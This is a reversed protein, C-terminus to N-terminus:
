IASLFGIVVMLGNLYSNPLLVLKVFVKEEINGKGRLELFDWSFVQVILCVYPFFIACLNFRFFQFVVMLGM